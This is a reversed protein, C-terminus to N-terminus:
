AFMSAQGPEVNSTRHNFHDTTRGGATDVNEDLVSFDQFRALDDCFNLSRGPRQKDCFATGQIKEAV